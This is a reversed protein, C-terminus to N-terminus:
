QEGGQQDRGWGAREGRGAASGLSALLDRALEEAGLPKVRRREIWARVETWDFLLKGGVRYAPLPDVADHVRSRITRQSTSLRKSLQKLDLYETVM